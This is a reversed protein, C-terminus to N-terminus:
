LLAGQRSEAEVREPVPLSAAYGIWQQIRAGRRTPSTSKPSNGTRKIRRENQALTLLRGKMNPRPPEGSIAVVDDITFPAGRAALEDVAPLGKDCYWPHLYGTM